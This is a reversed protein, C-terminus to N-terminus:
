FKSSLNKELFCLINDFKRSRRREEEVKRIAHIVTSHDKSFTRAIEPLSAKFVKRLIYMAVQRAQSVRRSRSSGKLDQASLGFHSAVASIVKEISSVEEKVPVEGSIKFSKIAGEIERVNDPVSEMLTQLLRDEVEVKLEKLKAKIIELKTVPDLRIELVVGGAFRSVLREPIDRLQKPHKDSALVVQKDKLVLHNFINFLETQTRVKGSLLQVDDILLFDVAKYKKRLGEISGGKLAQVIEESFDSATKYIVSYGRKLASNGIAQLLHTKGIGVKGFIFLPNYFKGPEEVIRRAVEYAVRNGEGTIFNEFTYRPNLGETFPLDESDKKEEEGELLVEVGEPADSLKFIEELRKKLVPDETILLLKNSEEKLRVKSLFLLLKKDKRELFSLLNRVSIGGM